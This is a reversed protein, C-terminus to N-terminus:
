RCLLLQEKAQATLEGLQARLLIESCTAASPRTAPGRTAQPRAVPVATSAAPEATPRVNLS